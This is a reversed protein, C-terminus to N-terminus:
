LDTITGDLLFYYMKFWKTHSDPKYDPSSTHFPIGFRYKWQGDLFCVAVLGPSFDMGTHKKCM